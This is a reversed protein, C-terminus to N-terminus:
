QHIILAFRMGKLLVLCELLSPVFIIPHLSNESCRLYIESTKLTYIEIYLENKGLYLTVESVIFRQLIVCYSEPNFILTM